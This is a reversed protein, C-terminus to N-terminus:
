LFIDYKHLYEKIDIVFEHYKQPTFNLHLSSLMEPLEIFFGILIDKYYEELESKDFFIRKKSKNISNPKKKPKYEYDLFGKVTERYARRGITTIKYELPRERYIEVHNALKLRKMTQSVQSSSRNLYNKIETYSAVGERKILFFLIKFTNISIIRKRIYYHFIDQYTSPISVIM